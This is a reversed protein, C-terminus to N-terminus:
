KREKKCHKEWHEWAKIPNDEAATQYCGCRIFWDKNLADPCSRLVMGQKDCEPCEPEDKAEYECYGITKGEPTLGWHFAGNVSFVDDGASLLEWGYHGNPFKTWKIECDDCFWIDGEDM